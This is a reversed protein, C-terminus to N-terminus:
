NEGSFPNGYTFSSRNTMTTQRPLANNSLISLKNNILKFLNQDAALVPRAYSPSTFQMPWFNRRPINRSKDGLMHTRAYPNTTFISIYNGNRPAGLTISSKLEGSKVLTANSHKVRKAYTPSLNKWPKDRYEGGSGFNQKTMKKFEEGAYKLLTNRGNVSLANLINKISPSVSNLWNCLIWEGSIKNM